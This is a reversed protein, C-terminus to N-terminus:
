CVIEFLNEGVKPMKASGEVAKYSGSQLSLGQMAATPPAGAAPAGGPYGQGAGQPLVPRAGPLNPYAGQQPPPAGGQPAPYGGQAGPYGAQGQPAPYGTQAAGPYGAQGQAGPYGGQGQAAPYGGQQPPPAGYGPQAM